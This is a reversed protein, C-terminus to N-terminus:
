KWGKALSAIYKKQYQSYCFATRNVRDKKRERVMDDSMCRAMFEGMPEKAKPAYEFATRAFDESMGVVGGQQAEDEQKPKTCAMKSYEPSYGASKHKEMCDTTPLTAFEKSEENAFAFGQEVETEISDINDTIDETASMKDWEGKCIAYAQGESDYEGIIERICASIYTQEDQSETPKPIPM